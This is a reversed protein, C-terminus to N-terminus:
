LSPKKDTKPKRPNHTFFPLLFRPVGCCSTVVAIALTRFGTLILIAKVPRIGFEDLEIKTLVSEYGDTPSMNNM